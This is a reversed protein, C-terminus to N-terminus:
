QRESMNGLHSIPFAVKTYIFNFKWTKVERIEGPGKREKSLADNHEEANRLASISSHNRM